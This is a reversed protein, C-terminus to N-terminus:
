WLQYTNVSKEKHKRAFKSHDVIREEEISIEFSDIFLESFSIGALCPVDKVEGLLDFADKPKNKLSYAPLIKIGKYGFQGLYEEFYSDLAKYISSNKLCALCKKWIEQYNNKDRAEKISPLDLISQVERQMVYTLYFALKREFGVIREKENGFTDLRVHVYGDKYLYNIIDQEELWNRRSFSDSFRYVLKNM